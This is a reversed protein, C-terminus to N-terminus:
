KHLYETFLKPLRFLIVHRMRVAYLFAMSGFKLNHSRVHKVADTYCKNGIASRFKKLRAEDLSIEHKRYLQMYCKYKPSYRETLSGSTNRKTTLFDEIWGTKSNMVIRFFWDWDECFIFNEDFLGVSKLVDRRVMVTSTVIITEKLIDDKLDSGSLKRPGRLVERGSKYLDVIGTFSFGLDNGKMYSVQRSVKDKHLLDDSDLLAVYDGTSAKLGTNRAVAVGSNEQRIYIVRAASILDKITDETGDSSGDDVVIIETNKYSQAIVSELTTRLTRAANYAPIVVSVKDTELHNM